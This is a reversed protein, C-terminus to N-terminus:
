RRPRLMRRRLREWATLVPGAGTERADDQRHATEDVYAPGREWM